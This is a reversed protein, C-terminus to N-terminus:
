RRGRAFYLLPGFPQVFFALLWLPKPGRVEAAPRRALDRLALTTMILELIGGVVIATRAQPSLESWRKKRRADGANWESPEVVVAESDM